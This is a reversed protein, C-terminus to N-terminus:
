EDLEVTPPEADLEEQIDEDTKEPDIVGHKRLQSWLDSAPLRGSQWAGILATLMQADLNHEVFDQNLTYEVAENAGMFQAMWGLVLTYADSVNNAALSLVSHQAENEAQAETATKVAQGREVLRAGLAVMQREKQDMAEKVISNPAVQAYGFAGGEPLLIPTRSGVYVGQEELWNRWEESLGSIWPQPQGVFYTSDEYDASNRYHALNIRALDILPSRDISTDNNEAGIFTLPIENWQKGARDTPQYLEAIAWERNEAVQRWIEVQYVGEVLRLVRYQTETEEGFGDATVTENTEQIVVLALRHVGGLKETRWNIVQDANISVVSARVFRKQEDLLSVSEVTVNPYDVLLAHRGRRLVAELSSQSQQYISVGEGDIDSEVYDLAAPVSLTPWKRFVAGVLEQLTRSTAGYFVSRALYQTYRAQNRTSKDDPNPMPLYYTKKAKIAREGKCVDDVLHWDDRAGLVEKKVHTVDAM